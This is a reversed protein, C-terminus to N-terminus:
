LPLAHPGRPRYPQRDPDNAAGFHGIAKLHQVTGELEGIQRRLAEVYSCAVMADNVAQAHVASRGWSTLWFLALCASRPAKGTANYRKITRVSVGLVRAVRHPPPQCLEHMLVHWAPVSRPAQDISHLVLTM